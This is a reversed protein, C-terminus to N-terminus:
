MSSLALLAFPCLLQEQASVVSDQVAWPLHSRTSGPHSAPGLRSFGTVLMDHTACSHRTDPVVAAVKAVKRQGACALDLSLAALKLSRPPALTTAHWEAGRAMRLTGPARDTLGLLM